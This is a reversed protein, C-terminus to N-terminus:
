RSMKLITKLARPAKIFYKAATGYQGKETYALGMLLNTYENKPDIALSKKLQAIGADIQGLKGYVIALYNHSWINKSDLQVLKQFNNRANRFDNRAYYAFALCNLAVIDSSNKALRSEMKKIIERAFADYNTKGIIEFQAASEEIKGLNAYAVGLLLRQELNRPSRNQSVITNWNVKSAALATTGVALVLLMILFKRM